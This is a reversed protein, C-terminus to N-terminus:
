TPKPLNIGQLRRAGLFLVIRVEPIMEKKLTKRNIQVDIGVFSYLNKKLSSMLKKKSFQKLILENIKDFELGDLAVYELEEDKQLNKKMRKKNGKYLNPEGDPGKRDYFYKGSNKNLLPIHFSYIHIIGFRTIISRKLRRVERNLSYTKKSKSFKNESFFKGCTHAMRNLTMSEQFTVRRSTKQCLALVNEHIIEEASSFLLLDKGENLKASMTSVSDELLLIRKLENRFKRNQSFCSFSVLLCLVLVIRM